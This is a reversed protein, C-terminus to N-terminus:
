LYQTSNETPNPKTKKKKPIVPAPAPEVKPAVYVGDSASLPDNESRSETSTLPATPGLAMEDSDEKMEYSGGRLAALTGDFIDKIAYVDLDALSESVNSTASRVEKAVNKSLGAGAGAAYDAGGSVLAGAAAAIKALSLSEAKDSGAAAAAAVINEFIAAAATGDVDAKVASVAALAAAIEAIAQQANDGAAAVVEAVISKVVNTAESPEVANLMKAYRVYEEAPLVSDAAFASPAAVLAWLATAFIATRHITKM